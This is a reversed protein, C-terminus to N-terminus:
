SSQGVNDTNFNVGVTYAAWAKEASDSLDGAKEVWSKVTSENITVQQGQQLIQSGAEQTLLTEAYIIQAQSLNVNNNIGHTQIAKRALKSYSDNPQATYTFTNTSESSTKEEDTKAEETEEKAAETNQDNAKESEESEESKEEEKNEDKNEEAQAQSQTQKDSSGTNSNNSIASLGLVGAIVLLLVALKQKSPLNM